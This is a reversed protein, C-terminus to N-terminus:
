LMPSQTLYLAAEKAYTKNISYEIIILLKITTIEFIKNHIKNKNTITANIKKLSLRTCM